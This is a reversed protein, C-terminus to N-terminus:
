VAFLYLFHTVVDTQRRTASPPNLHVEDLLLGLIVLVCSMAGQPQGWALFIHPKSTHCLQKSIPVPPITILVGM